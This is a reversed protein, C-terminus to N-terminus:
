RENHFSKEQPKCSNRKESETKATSLRDKMSVKSETSKEKMEERELIELHMHDEGLVGLMLEYTFDDVEDPYKGEGYVKM